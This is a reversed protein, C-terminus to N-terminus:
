GNDDQQDFIAHNIEGEISQDVEELMKDELGIQELLVVIYGSRQYFEFQYSPGDNEHDTGIVVLTLILGV